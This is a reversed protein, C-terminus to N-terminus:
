EITHETPLLGLYQEHGSINHGPTDFLWANADLFIPASRTQLMVRAKAQYPLALKCNRATAADASEGDSSTVMVVPSWEEPLNAEPGATRGKRRVLHRSAGNPYLMVSATNQPDFGYTSIGLSALANGLTGPHDGVIM